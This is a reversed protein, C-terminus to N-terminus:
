QGIIGPRAPKFFRLRVLVREVQAAQWEGRGRPTPIGSRNLGDAIGRLTTVGAAQLEKVIPALDAAREDARAQVAATGARRPM